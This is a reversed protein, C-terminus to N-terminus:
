DISIEKSKLSRHDCSRVHRSGGCFETAEKVRVVESAHSLLNVALTHAKSTGCQTTVFFKINSRKHLITILDETESILKLTLWLSCNDVNEMAVQESNDCLRKCGIPSILEPYLYWLAVVYIKLPYGLTNGHLGASSACKGSGHHNARLCSTIVSLHSRWRHSKDVM